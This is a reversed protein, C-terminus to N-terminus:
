GYAGAVSAAARPWSSAAVCRFCSDGLEATISFSRNKVNIFANEMLGSMGPYVTLSTRGGMLDPRGAVAANFREITRDDIPLVHNEIAVKTFLDQM